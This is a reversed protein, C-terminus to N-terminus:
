ENGRYLFKHEMGNKFRISEIRSNKICFNQVVSGLFDKLIQPDIKRIFKEYDVDRADALQQSLIFYPAKKIFDEDSINFQNSRDKELEEMRADLMEIEGTIRCKEVYYDNESIADDGYLYLKQLRALARESRRRESVLLDMENMESKNSVAKEHAVFSV